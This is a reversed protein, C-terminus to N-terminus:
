RILRILYDHEIYYDYKLAIITDVCYDHEVLYDHRRLLRTLLYDHLWIITNWDFLRTCGFLRLNTACLKHYLDNYMPMQGMLSSKFIWRTMITEITIM